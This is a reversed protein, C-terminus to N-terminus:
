CNLNPSLNPKKRFCFDPPPQVLHPTKKIQTIQKHCQIQIQMQTNQKALVLHHTRQSIRSLEPSGHTQIYQIQLYMNIARYKHIQRQWCSTALGKPFGPNSLAEMHKHNQMQLYM